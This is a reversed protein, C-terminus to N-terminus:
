RFSGLYTAPALLSCTRRSRKDRYLRSFSRQPHCRQPPSSRKLTTLALSFQALHSPNLRTVHQQRTPIALIPLRNQSRKIFLNSQTRPQFLHTSITRRFSAFYTAAALLSCTRRSRKDRYLRSFSREPHCRLPATPKQAALALSLAFRAGRLIRPSSDCPM